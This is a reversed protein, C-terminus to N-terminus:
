SQPLGPGRSLRARGQVSPGQQPISGGRRQLLPLRAPALSAPIAKGSDEGVGLGAKPHGQLWCRTPVVTVWSLRTAGKLCIEPDPSSVSQQGRLASLGHSRRCQALGVSLGLDASTLCPGVRCGCGALHSRNEVWTQLFGSSSSPPDM